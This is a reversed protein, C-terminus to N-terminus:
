KRYYIASYIRRPNVHTAYTCQTYLLVTPGKMCLVTPIVFIQFVNQIHYTSFYMFNYDSYGSYPLSCQLGVPSLLCWNEPALLLYFVVIIQVGYISFESYSSALTFSFQLYKTLEIQGLSLCSSTSYYIM